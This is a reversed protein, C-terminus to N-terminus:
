PSVIIVLKAESVTVNSLGQFIETLRRDVGAPLPLATLGRLSTPLDATVDRSAAFCRVTETGPPETVNLDFPFNDGPVMHVRGGDLLAMDHHANPFIKFMRDDAQRYFCYLWANRDLEISLSLKEGVHYVPDPGRASSLKLVIPKATDPRPLKAIDIGPAQKAEGTATKDVMVTDDAVVVRGRLDMFELMKVLYRNLTTSDASTVYRFESRQPAARVLRHAEYGQFVVLYEEIGVREDASFRDFVLSYGKGPAGTQAAFSMPAGACFMSVLGLTLFLVFRSMAAVVGYGVRRPVTMHTLAHSLATKPM